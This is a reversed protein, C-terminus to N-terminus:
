PIQTVKEYGGGFGFAGVCNIIGRTRYPNLSKGQKVLFFSTKRGEHSLSSPCFVFFLEVMREVRSKALKGLADKREL